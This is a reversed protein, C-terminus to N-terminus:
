FFCILFFTCGFGLLFGAYVQAPTHAELRLRAYGILGSIFISAYLIEPPTSTLFISLGALAGTIGGAAVAHASIKWRLSIFTTLLLAIAAGLTFLRIVTGMVIPAPFNRLLFYAFLYYAVTFLFPGTREQKEKMELSSIFGTRLLILSSLAPLLGTAIFTISLLHLCFQIDRFYYLRSFILYLLYMGYTPILLPHFLYSLFTAHRYTDGKM